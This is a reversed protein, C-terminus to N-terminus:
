ASKRRRAFIAGFGLAMAVVTGPEPVPNMGAARILDLETTGTFKVAVISDGNSLGFSSLDLSHVWLRAGYPGGGGYYYSRNEGSDVATAASITQLGVFNTGDTSVSMSFSDTSYRGVVVGLEDGVGNVIATNYGITYTKSGFIGINAIGTEFGVGTLYSPNGPNSNTTNLWNTSSHTGGDSELLTNGFQNDNFTFSGLTTQGLSMSAIGIILGSFVLKQIKM